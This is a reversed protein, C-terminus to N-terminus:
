PSSTRSSGNAASPKSKEIRHCRRDSGSGASAHSRRTTASRSSRAPPDKEIRVFSDVADPFLRLDRVDYTIGPLGELVRFLPDKGLAFPEGPVPDRAYNPSTDDIGAIVNFLLHRETCALMKRLMADLYAPYHRVYHVLAGCAVVVGFREDLRFAPDLFDARRFEIRRGEARAAAHEVFAPVLDLGLYRALPAGPFRVALFDLLGGTGCGVDLCRLPGDLSLGSFLADFFRPGDETSRQALAEPAELASVRARAEYARRLRAADEAWDAFRRAELGAPGPSM